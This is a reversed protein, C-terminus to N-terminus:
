RHPKSCFRRSLLNTKTSENTYIRILPKLYSSKSHLQFISSTWYFSIKEVLTKMKSHCAPTSTGRACNLGALDPGLQRAVHSTLLSAPAGLSAENAEGAAGTRRHRCSARPRPKGASGTSRPGWWSLSRLLGLHARWGSSPRTRAASEGTVKATTILLRCTM